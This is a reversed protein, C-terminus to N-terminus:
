SSSLRMSTCEATFPGSASADARTHRHGWTDYAPSVRVLSYGRSDSVDRPSAMGQSFLHRLGEIDGNMAFSISQATDPVRRISSLQMQPGANPMYKLQLRLNVMLFWWPFWYEMTVYSTQRDRCGRFDCPSNWAPMATYGIFMKGLLAEMLGPVRVNLKRQVHCACPCWNRCPVRHSILVRLTEISSAETTEKESPEPIEDPSPIHPPPGGGPILQWLADLRDSLGQYQQDM